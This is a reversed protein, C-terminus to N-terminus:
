HTGPSRAMITPAASIRRDQPIRRRRQPRPQAAVLVFGLRFGVADDDHRFDAAELRAETV